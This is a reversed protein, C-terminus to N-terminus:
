GPTRRQVTGVQGAEAGMGDLRRRSREVPPRPPLPLLVRPRPRPRAPRDGAGVEGNARGNGNGDSHTTAEDAAVPGGYRANLAAVGESARELLAADAPTTEQAADRFDSLLAFSVNEDRNALFRVELAELLDDVEGADTLLTPVAVVTRHEPPIGKAYDMRPLIRPRVLSMAVWHVLAVALHSAAVVLLAGVAALGWPGLGSRTTRWLVLGTVVATVLLISALYATLPIAAAARRLLAGPSSRVRAARDLTRRGRDVLFYGVHATRSTRGTGDGDGAGRSPPLRALDVAKRAVEEESLHARKAVQEVAHRYYDRTAFDMAPYVGAPDSRLAHEVVSMAEVFDRWEAAGLFRLSGISNGISVQHGAQNQSAQQFVQEITQGQEALRQELWTVAFVLGPGQGQLRSAFEAVFATTLPPNERVMDALVLVVQAPASESLELMQEVWYAARERERRATMVHFAVRRLNELLALRLMIPIAWLEGLRLPRVSQYAIVFARLSDGDVRGDAHSILELAIGYVRPLGASPGSALRPLERSYGRPLHRRATRIQEEILHYNDLFWEAAPTIRRGRKVADTVVDYADRLVRENARLRPLLRDPERGNARGGVGHWGALTKAHEELQSVSFLEARLPQEDAPM